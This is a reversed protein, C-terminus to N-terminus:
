LTGSQVQLVDPIETKVAGILSDIRTVGRGECYERLEDIMRTMTTVSIFNATGVQVATAGALIYELADSATAIGGCGIIPISLARACQFAMRLIMPRTAPGTIGGMVNALKPRMTNVDIAMALLANAVVIADAGATEAARGIEVVNGANPSLKVWIPLKTSRKISHVVGATAGADLAFALGDQKLNPCSVNVEIASVGPVSVRGALEGFEETTDASISAILPTQFLRYFPVIENVYYEVGKSPIGISWLVADRFETVRPPPNGERVDATITKTVIAGLRELEIARIMGEAFCGSAPMIPNALRVGGVTVSLDVM